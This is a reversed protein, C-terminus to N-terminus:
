PGERGVVIYTVSELIKIQILVAEGDLGWSRTGCELGVIEADTRRRLLNEPLSGVSKEVLLVMLPVLLIFWRIKMMPVLTNTGKNLTEYLVM